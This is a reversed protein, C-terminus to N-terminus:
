NGGKMLDYNKGYQEMQDEAMRKGEANLHQYLRLYQVFMTSTEPVISVTEKKVNSKIMNEGISKILM